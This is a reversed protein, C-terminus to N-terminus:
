FQQDVKKNEANMFTKQVDESNNLQECISQQQLGVPTFVLKSSQTHNISVPVKRRMKIKKLRIDMSVFNLAQYLFM